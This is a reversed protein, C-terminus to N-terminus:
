PFTIIVVYLYKQVPLFTNIFIPHAAWIAVTFVSAVVMLAIKRWLLRSVRAVGEIQELERILNSLEDFTKIEFYVISSANNSFLFARSKVRLVNIEHRVFISFVDQSLGVRDISLIRLGVKTSDKKMLRKLVRHWFKPRGIEAVELTPYLSRIVNEPKFTGDGIAILLDDLNTFARGFTLKVADCIKKRSIDAVLGLGACDFEKQLLSRGM